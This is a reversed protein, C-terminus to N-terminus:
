ITEHGQCISRGIGEGENSSHIPITALAGDINAAGFRCVEGVLLQMRHYTIELVM